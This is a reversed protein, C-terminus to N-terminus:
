KPSEGKTVRPKPKVTVRAPRERAAGLRFAGTKFNYTLEGGRFAPSNNGRSVGGLVAIASVLDARGSTALKASERRPGAARFRNSFYPNVM